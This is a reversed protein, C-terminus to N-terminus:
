VHPRADEAIEVHMPDRDKWGIAFGNTYRMDVYDVAEAQSALVQDLAMFFRDIREDVASAGLRVRIGNNLQFEWAGREDLRLSVAAMGRQELRQQIQFYRMAVRGESGEPGDLRPLEVPVHKVDDVFLEGRHNLLGREGWCAAPRQETVLVEISGPWRRRVSANEVWPIGALEARMAHLDARLFSTRVHPALAEELRIASVRQFAGNIVVADIPRDMLWNMAVYGTMLVTVVMVTTIVRSWPIKPGKILWHFRSWDVRPQTRTKRKRNHKAM